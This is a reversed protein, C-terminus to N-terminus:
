RKFIDNIKEVDGDKIAKNGEKYTDKIKKNRKFVDWRTLLEGSFRVINYLM